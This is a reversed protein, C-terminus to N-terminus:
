ENERLLAEVALAHDAASRVAAEDGARVREELADIAALEKRCARLHPAERSGTLREFLESAREGPQTDYLDRVIMPLLVAPIPGDAPLNRATRAIYKGVDHVLDHVRDSM